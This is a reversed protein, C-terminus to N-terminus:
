HRRSRRERGCQAQGGLTQRRDHRDSCLRPENACQKSGFVNSHLAIRRAFSNRGANCFTTLRLLTLAFALPSNRTCFGLTSEAAVINTWLNWSHTGVAAPLRTHLAPNQCAETRKAVQAAAPASAVHYVGFTANAVYLVFHAAAVIVFHKPSRCLCDKKKPGGDLTSVLANTPVPFKKGDLKAYHAWFFFALLANV